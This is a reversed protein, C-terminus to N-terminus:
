NLFYSFSNFHILVVSLLSNFSILNVQFSNTFFSFIFIQVKQTKTLFVYFEKM